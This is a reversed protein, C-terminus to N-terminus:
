FEKHFFPARIEAAFYLLEPQLMFRLGGFRAIWGPQLV